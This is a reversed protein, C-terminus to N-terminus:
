EQEGSKYVISVDKKITIETLDSVAEFGVGTTITDSREIKVFEDSTILNKSNSYNMIESTVVLDDKLSNVVVNGIAQMDKTKSDVIGKESNVYTVEKKDEYFTIIPKDIYIKQIDDKIIAKEGVLKWKREGKVIEELTFTILYDAKDKEQKSVQEEKKSKSCGSFILMMVLLITLIRKNEM